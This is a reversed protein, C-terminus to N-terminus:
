EYSPMKIIINYAIINIDSNDLFHNQSDSQTMRWASRREKESFCLLQMRKTKNGFAIDDLNIYVIHLHNPHTTFFVM